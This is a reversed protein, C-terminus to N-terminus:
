LRARGQVALRRASVDALASLGFAVVHRSMHWGDTLLAMLNTLWGGTVKAVAMMIATRVLAWCTNRGVLPNSKDFETSHEKNRNVSLPHAATLTKTNAKSIYRSSTSYTKKPVILKSNGQTVGRNVRSLFGNSARVRPM